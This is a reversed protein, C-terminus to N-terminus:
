IEKEKINKLLQHVLLVIGVVAGVGAMGASGVTGIAVAAGVTGVAYLAGVALVFLKIDKNSAKIDKELSVPASQHMQIDKELWHRLQNGEIAKEDYMLMLVGTVTIDFSFGEMKMSHFLSKCNDQALHKNYIDYVGKSKIQNVIVRFVAKSGAQRVCANVKSMMVMEENSPGRNTAELVFYLMYSYGRKLAETLKSANYETEKDDPEFLGPVDMLVVKNGDVIASMEYIDKTCGERFKVGSEFNGGLQSLLTSKGAGSNGILLIATTNGQPPSSDSIKM